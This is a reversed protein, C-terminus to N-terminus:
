RPRAAPAPTAHPATHPHRRLRLARFTQALDAAGAAEPAAAGRASVEWIAGYRAADMRAAAHVGLLDGLHERGVPDMWAPAFVVLDGPAFGARVAAEARAWDGGAPAAAHVRLLTAIEWSSLLLLAAAALWAKKVSDGPLRGGLPHGLQGEGRRRLRDARQPRASRRDALRRRRAGPQARRERHPPGRR